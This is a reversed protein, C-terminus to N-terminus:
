IQRKQKPKILVIVYSIAIFIITGLEYWSITLLFDKEDLELSYRLDGDINSFTINGTKYTLLLYDEELRDTEAVRALTESHPHEHENNKGVSFVVFNPNLMELLEKSSSFKSGHHGAIFVSVNSIHECELSTLSSIFDTEEFDLNEAAKDSSSFSADGSFFFTDGLCSVMFIASNNNSEGAGYGVTAFGETSDTMLSLDLEDDRVLPAFFEIEYNEGSIKLGDYFVIISSFIKKGDDFYYEDYASEIFDNYIGSTVRSIKSRNGTLNSYYEYVGALDESENPVFEDANDGYGAIQFPRLITKVEIMELVKLLGGIHDADAHTAIMYDIQFVGEARLFDVIKSGSVVNGGDILMTKGDPFRVFTSNGQGVDLYTVEYKGDEIKSESVQNEAYTESLNMVNEIKEAFFFSLVVLALLTCVIILKIKLEKKSFKNKTM